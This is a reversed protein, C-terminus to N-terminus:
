STVYMNAIAGLLTQILGVQQNNQKDIFAQLATERKNGRRENAINYDLQAQM